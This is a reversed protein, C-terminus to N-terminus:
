ASVKLYLRVETGLDNLEPPSVKSWEKNTRGVEIAYCSELFALYKPHAYLVAQGDQSQGAEGATQTEKHLAFRVTIVKTSDTSKAPAANALPDSSVVSQPEAVGRFRLRVRRLLGNGIVQRDQIFARKDLM